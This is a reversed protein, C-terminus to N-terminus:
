FSKTDKTIKTGKTSTLCLTRRTERSRLSPRHRKAPQPRQNRLTRRYYQRANTTDGKADYAMALLNTIFPDTMNGKALESIRM